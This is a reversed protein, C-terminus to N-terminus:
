PQKFSNNPSYDCLNARTERFVDFFRRPRKKGEPLAYLLGQDILLLPEDPGIELGKDLMKQATVFDRAFMYSDALGLYVLFNDPFLQQMRSMLANAEDARGAVGM